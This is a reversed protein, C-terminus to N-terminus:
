IKEASEDLERRGGIVGELDDDARVRAGGDAEGELAVRKNPAVLEECDRLLM